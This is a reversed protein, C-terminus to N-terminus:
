KEGSEIRRAAAQKRWSIDKTKAAAPWAAAVGGAMGGGGGNKAM